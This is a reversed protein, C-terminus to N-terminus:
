EESDMGTILAYHFQSTGDDFHVTIGYLLMQTETATLDVVDDLEQQTLEDDKSQPIRAPFRMAQVAVSDKISPSALSGEWSEEQWNDSDTEASTPNGLTDVYVNTLSGCQWRYATAQGRNDTEHVVAVCSNPEVFGDGDAPDVSFPENTAALAFRTRYQFELHQVEYYDINDHESAWVSWNISFSGDTRLTQIAFSNASCRFVVGDGLLEGCEAITSPSVHDMQQAAILPQEPEEVLTAQPPSVDAATGVVPESWDSKVGSSYRARVIVKYTGGPELGAVTVEPETPFASWDSDRWNRFSEGQPAWTVRYEEPAPSPATWTVRLEGAADGPSVAVGEVPDSEHSSGLAISPLAAFLALALAAAALLSLALARRNRANSRPQYM